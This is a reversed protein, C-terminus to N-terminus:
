IWYDPWFENLVDAFMIVRYLFFAALLFSAVAAAYLGLRIKQWKQSIHKSEILSPVANHGILMNTAFVVVFFVALWISTLMKGIESWESSGLSAPDM